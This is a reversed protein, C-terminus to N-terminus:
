ESGKRLALFADVGLLKKIEAFSVMQEESHKLHGNHLFDTALNHIAKVTVLLTEIPAVVIKYGMQELEGAALIPTKGFSLMNVLKPHQVRQAITELDGRTLPAEIFAMEAGADCYRNARDIADDLGHPEAADTRAILLFDSNKRVELATKLKLVMEESPVVRKGEFHGCRKPFEQDELIIGAAGADEFDSVCRAVNHLDGHGTDGDAILPISIRKAMRRVADAMEGSGLFNLDPLGYASASAGFGGIFLCELGARELTLATLADHAGMSRVIGPGALLNRLQQTQNKM